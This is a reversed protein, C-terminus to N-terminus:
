NETVVWLDDPVGLNGNVDVPIEWLEGDSTRGLINNGNASLAFYKDWGQGVQVPTGAVNTSSIAIRWVKGDPTTAFIWSRSGIMKNYKNWSESSVIDVSKTVATATANLYRRILKGSTKDRIMLDDQFIFFQDTNTWSFTGTINPNPGPFTGTAHDYNYRRPVGASGTLQAILYTGRTCVNDLGNWNGGIQVAPQYRGAELLTRHINTNFNIGNGLMILSSLHGFITRYNNWNVVTDLRPKITNYSTYFTDLATSDPLFATKLKFERGFPLNQLITFPESKKVQIEKTNNNIDQFKVSLGAFGASQQAWVIKLDDGTRLLESYTASLLSNAYRDGYVKGIISAKVSTNGLKDFTYIQFEHTGEEINNIMLKVTDVSASKVVPNVISDRGNNWTVKYKVVKPDSLLLWTLQIRKNGGRVKISDAKAIYITEGNKVFDRYTDDMKSCGWLTFCLAMVVACTIISNNSKM